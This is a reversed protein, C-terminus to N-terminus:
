CDSQDHLLERDFAFEGLGQGCQALQSALDSLRKLCSAQADLCEGEIFDLFHADSASDGISHLQLLAANVTKEMELAQQVLQLGVATSSVTVPAPPKGIDALILQGGRVTQYAM